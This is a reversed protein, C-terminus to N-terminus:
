KSVFIYRKLDPSEIEEIIRRAILKEPVKIKTRETLDAFSEFKAKERERLIEEVSKKGLGPIEELLHKRLSIGQAENFFRVFREEKSKVILTVVYELEALANNTLENYGIRSRVREVVDRRKEPTDKGIYVRDEITVVAGAKPILTFLKFEEDSIAYIVPERRGMGGGAVGNPLYDLVYAYEEM